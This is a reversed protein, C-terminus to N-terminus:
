CSFQCSKKNNEDYAFVYFYYNCDDEIGILSLSYELVDEGQLMRQEGRLLGPAKIGYEQFRVGYGQIPAEGPLSPSWKLKIDGEEQIIMLEEPVSPAFYDIQISSIFSEIAKTKEIKLSPMTTPFNESNTVGVLTIKNQYLSGDHVSDDSRGGWYSCYTIKQLFHDFRAIVGEMGSTRDIWDTLIKKTANHTVPLDMSRTNGTIYVQQKEDVAISVGIDDGTGGFLCAQLLHTEQFAM